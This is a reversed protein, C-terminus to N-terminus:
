RTTTTTRGSSSSSGSPSRTTSSRSSSTPRQDEVCERLRRSLQRSVDRPLKVSSDKLSAELLVPDSVVKDYTCEALARDLPPDTISRIKTVYEEKSPADPGGCGVAFVLAVVVLGAAAKRGHTSRDPAPRM